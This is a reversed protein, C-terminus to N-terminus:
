YGGAGIMGAVVYGLDARPIHPVTIAVALVIVLPVVNVLGLLGSPLQPANAISRRATIALGIFAAVAGTVFIVVDGYGPFGYTKVGAAFSGAISLTYGQPIVLTLLSRAIFSSAAPRELHTQRSM